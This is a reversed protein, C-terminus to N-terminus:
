PGAVCYPGVLSQHSDPRTPLSTGRSPSTSAAVAYDMWARLLTMLAPIRSATHIKATVLTRPRSRCRTSRRVAVAPSSPPAPQPILTTVGVVSHPWLANSQASRSPAASWVLDAGGDPPSASKCERFPRAALAVRGTGIGGTSTRMNRSRTLKNKREVLVGKLQRLAKVVQPLGADREPRGGGFLARSQKKKADLTAVGQLTYQQNPHPATVQVTRGSMQGYADFLWWQGSARNADVASDDGNGDINWYALDADIKSEEIASVWQVVQGPVSLHYNHGHENVNIPLPGIGVEQEWQRYKAVSTRVAAPSSLEHWTMVDPVVDNAEAYQLFGKVQDFLLSTNPGAIRADPDQDKILHYVEKWAAFFYQPDDLWSVNNYSWTGSGFMNGEPENFPVYVVHDKYGGMTKVQAVQKKIKEKFDALREPGSDGPWQYPFGRYIDTMYIYADEGGSDVLPPLAELADAGPHQHGDQAKTSLTRLHMGEILNRSPAGDGYIGYLSGAAGGHFAGTDAALDIVLREPDAAHATGASPAALLTALVAAGTAGAGTTRKRRVSTETIGQPNPRQVLLTSGTRRFRAARFDVLLVESV